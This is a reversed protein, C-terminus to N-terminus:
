QIRFGYGIGRHTELLAATKPPLKARLRRIHIDVTRGSGEFDLGWVMDLLRDRPFLKGRHM